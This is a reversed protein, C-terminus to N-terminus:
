SKASRRRARPALRALDKRGFCLCDEVEYCKLRHFAPPLQSRRISRQNFIGLHEAGEQAGAHLYVRRPLKGLFAGIRFATDYVMLPRSSGIAGEVVEFLEEFGASNQLDAEVAMLQSRIEAIFRPRLWRQHSDLKGNAKKGASALRIVARLSPRTRYHVVETDIRPRCESIFVQVIEEYSHPLPAVKPRWSCSNGRAMRTPNCGAM